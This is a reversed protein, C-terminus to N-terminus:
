TSCRPPDLMLRRCDKGTSSTTPAAADAVGLDGEQSGGEVAARGDGLPIGVREEREVLGARHLVRGPAAQEHVGERVVEDVLDRRIAVEVLGLRFPEDPQDRALALDPAPGLEVEQEADEFRRAPDGETERTEREVLHLM